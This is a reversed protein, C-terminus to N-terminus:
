ISENDIKSPLLVKQSKRVKSPQMKSLTTLPPARRVPSTRMGISIIPSNSEFKQPPIIRKSPPLRVQPNFSKVIDRLRTVSSNHKRKKIKKEVMEPSHIIKNEVKPLLTSSQRLTTQSSNMFDITRKQMKESLGLLSQQRSLRIKEPLDFNNYAQM